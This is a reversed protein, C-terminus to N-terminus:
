FVIKIPKKTPHNFYFELWVDVKKPMDSPYAPGGLTTAQYPDIQYLFPVGHLEIKYSELIVSKYPLDLRPLLPSEYLSYFQLQIDKFIEKNKKLLNLVQHLANPSRDWWSKMPINNELNYKAQEKTYMNLEIGIAQAILHAQKQADPLVEYDDDIPTDIKKPKVNKDATSFLSKIRPIIVMVFFILLLIVIYKNKSLFKKIKKNM